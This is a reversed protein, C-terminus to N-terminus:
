IISILMYRVCIIHIFVFVSVCLREENLFKLDTDYIYFPLIKTGGVTPRDRSRVNGGCKVRASDLNKPPFVM